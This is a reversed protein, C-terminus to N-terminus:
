PVDGRLNLHSNTRKTYVDTHKDQHNKLQLIYKYLSIIVIDSIEYSLILM